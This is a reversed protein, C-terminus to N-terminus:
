PLEDFGYRSLKHGVGVFRPDDYIKFTPSPATNLSAYRQQDKGAGKYMTRFKYITFTGGGLGSRKQKYIIPGKSGIKILTGILFLAPSLLILLLISTFLDFVRKEISFYYRNPFNSAM